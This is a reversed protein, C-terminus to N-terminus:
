PGTYQIKQQPLNEFCLIQFQAIDWLFMHRYGLPSGMSFAFSQTVKFIKAGVEFGRYGNGNPGGETLLSDPNKTRALKSVKHAYEAITGGVVIAVHYPPCATTGILPVKEDM